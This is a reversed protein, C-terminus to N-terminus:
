SGAVGHGTLSNTSVLADTLCLFEDMDLTEARRKPDIGCKKMADLLVDRNWSPSVGRLSNLMTKRRHAFSAKVMKSFKDEDIGRKPYPMKFDLELVISDVKPKPNFADKSVELLMRTHAHYQVLLTMAGYAKGGPSATLRKGVEAQFMLVARTLVNRNRILKDLVPSSINYPLNGIVQIGTSSPLTIEHIDWKLIDHNILKVNTIGARSLRKQLLTVLHADKEVAVVRGVIRSLPLTLAGLGPGIELVVDSSQFGALSIIKHIIEPEIIFHQGLRKKARFAAGPTKGQNSAPSRRWTFGSKMSKTHAM